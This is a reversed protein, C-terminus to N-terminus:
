IGGASQNGCRALHEDAFLRMAIYPWDENGFWRLVIRQPLAKGRINMANIEGPFRPIQYRELTM